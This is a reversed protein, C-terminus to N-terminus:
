WCGYGRCWGHRYYGGYHPGYYGPGYYYGSGYYPGSGAAIVAGGVLGATAGAAVANATEQSARRNAAYNASVCRQFARTGPRAGTQMCVDEASAYSETPTQCGALGCALMAAVFVIRM